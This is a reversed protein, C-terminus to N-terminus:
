SLSGATRAHGRLVPSGDRRRVRADLQARRVQVPVMVERATFSKRTREHEQAGPGPEVGREGEAARPRQAAHRRQQRDALTQGARVGLVHPAYRCGQQDLKVPDTPVEFYYNGLRGQRLRVRERPRRQRRRLKRVDRREPEAACCYPDASMKVPPNAPVAGEITVRGAVNGAKSEDVRKANAPPGSPAAQKEGSCAAALLCRAALPRLISRM